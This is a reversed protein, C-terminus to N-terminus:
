RPLTNQKNKNKELVIFLSGSCKAQHFQAHAHLLDTALFKNFKLTMLRLDLDCSQIKRYQVM